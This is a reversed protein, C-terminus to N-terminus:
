ITKLYEILATIEEDSFSLSLQDRKYRILDELNTFRGNHLLLAEDWVNVLSPAKFQGAPRTPRPDFKLIREVLDGEGLARDGGLLTLLSGAPEPFIAAFPAGLIVGSSEEGTGIDFLIAPTTKFSGGYPESSEPNGSSYTDGQHCTACQANFLEQGQLALEADVAPGQITPIGYAIYTSLAEADAEDLGAGGLREPLVVKLFDDINAHTASYHLWGRGATGGRLSNSRREGEVTGWASGDSAGRPHCSSCSAHPHGSLGPYKIPSSSNFLLKGRRMLPDLPDTVNQEIPDLETIEPRAPLTRIDRTFTQRTALSVAVQNTNQLWYPTLLPEPLADDAYASLDLVSVFTSSEYAVYARDGRQNVVIGTPNSGSLTLHDLSAPQLTEGDLVAVMDAVRSVVLARRGGRTFAVASVAGLPNMPTQRGPTITGPYFYLEDRENGLVSAERPTVFEIDNTPAACRLFDEATDTVDQALQWPITEGDEDRIFTVPYLVAPNNAGKKTQGIGWASIDGELAPFGPSKLGPLLAYRGSPHMFVGELMKPVGEFSLDEASWTSFIELQQVCRARDLNFQDRFSVEHAVTLAETDITSMWSENDPIPGRPLFHAVYLRSGSANIGMSTPRRGVKISDQYTLGGEVRNFVNIVDGVYSSVYVRTGDPSVIVSRPERGVGDAEGFRQVVEQTETDVVIVQNCRASLTVAYRDDPTVAVSMPEGPVSIVTQEGSELQTMVLADGDAFTSWLRQDQHSLTITTASRATLDHRRGSVRFKLSVQEARELGFSMSAYGDPAVVGLEFDSTDAPQAWPDVRYDRWTASSSELVTLRVDSLGGDGQHVSLDVRILDPYARLQKASAHLSWGEPQTVVTVPAVRAQFGETEFAEHAPDILVEFEASVEEGISGLAEVPTSLEPVQGLTDPCILEPARWRERALESLPQDGGPTPDIVEDGGVTQTSTSPETDDCAFLVCSCAVLVYIFRLM